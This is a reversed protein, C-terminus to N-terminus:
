RQEKLKYVSFSYVSEIEGTDNRKIDVVDWGTCNCHELLTGTFPAYRLGQRDNSSPWMTVGVKTKPNLEKSM